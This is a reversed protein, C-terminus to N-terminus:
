KKRNPVVSIEGSREIFATKVDAASEVHGNLRLEEVLDKETLHNRRVARQNIRGDEILLDARGKLLNDLVGFRCSLGALLRHFLVIVFGAGLTPFFPSSGNIARALMSALIFGLIADLATLKALFRKDGTRVMALAAIFVIVGRLSLQGFNLEEPRSGLGLTESVLESLQDM